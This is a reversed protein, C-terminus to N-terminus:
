TSTGERRRAFRLKEAESPGSAYHKLWNAEDGIQWLVEEHTNGTAKMREYATQYDIEYNAIARYVALRAAVQEDTATM